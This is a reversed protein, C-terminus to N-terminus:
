DNRVIDGRICVIDSPIRPNGFNMPFDAIATWANCAPTSSRCNGPDGNVADSFPKARERTAFRLFQTFDKVPNICNRSPVHKETDKRRLRALCNPASM